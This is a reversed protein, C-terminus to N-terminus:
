VIVINLSFFKLLLNKGVVPVDPLQPWDTGNNCLEGVCCKFVYQSSVGNEEHFKQGNYSKAKCYM